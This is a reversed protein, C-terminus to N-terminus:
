KTICSVITKMFSKNLLMYTGAMTINFLTFCALYERRM